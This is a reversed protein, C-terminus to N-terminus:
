KLERLLADADLPAPKIGRAANAAAEDPKMDCDCAALRIFGKEDRSEIKGICLHRTPEYMALELWNLSRAYGHDSVPHSCKPCALKGLRKQEKAKKKEAKTQKAM